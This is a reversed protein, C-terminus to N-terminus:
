KEEGQNTEIVNEWDVFADYITLIFCTIMMGSVMTFVIWWFGTVLWISLIVSLTIGFIAICKRLKTKLKLTM